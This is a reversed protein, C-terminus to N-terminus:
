QLYRACVLYAPYSKGGSITWLFDLHPSEESRYSSHWMFSLILTRRRQTESLVDLAKRFEDSSEQTLFRGLFPCDETCPLQAISLFEQNVLHIFGRSDVLCVPLPFCAIISRYHLLAEPSIRRDVLPHDHHNGASYPHDIPSVPQATKSAFLTLLFRMSCGSSYGGLPDSFHHSKQAPRHKAPM